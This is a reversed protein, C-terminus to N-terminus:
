KGSGSASNLYQFFESKPSLVLVDHKDSLAKRYANLSRYFRFFEPDKAYAVAYVQSAQADGEGRIKQAKDQADALLSSAKTDADSRIREAKESGKARLSAAVRKREARMRDYVASIEAKPLTINRVRLDVLKIGLGAIQKQTKKSLGSRLDSADLSLAKRQKAAGFEDRLGRNIVAALRDMAVLEQGSTARYYTQADAIEWKVFYAVDLNQQDATTFTQTQNDLTLIRGDYASVDQVFPIKFHLGPGYGHGVIRGFQTLLVETNPTVVFCANSVVIVLVVLAIIVYPLKRSM